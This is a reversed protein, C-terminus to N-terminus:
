LVLFNKPLEVFEHELVSQLFAFENKNLNKKEKYTKKTFTKTPM